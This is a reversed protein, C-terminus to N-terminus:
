FLYVVLFHIIIHQLLCRPNMGDGRGYIERNRGVQPFQVTESSTPPCVCRRLRREGSGCTGAGAAGAVGAAGVLGSASLTSACVAGSSPSRSKKFPTGTGPGVRNLQSGSGSGSCMKALKKHRMSIYDLEM